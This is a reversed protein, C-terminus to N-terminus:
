ACLTLFCPIRQRCLGISNPYIQPLLTGKSLLAEINPGLSDIIFVESQTQESTIAYRMIIFVLSNKQKSVSALVQLDASFFLL